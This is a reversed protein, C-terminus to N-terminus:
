RCREAIEVLERPPTKGREVRGELARFEDFTLRRETEELACRCSAETAGNARCNRLFNEAVEDPYRQREDRGCALAFAAVIPLLRRTSPRIM